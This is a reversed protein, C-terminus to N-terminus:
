NAVWGRIIDVLSDRMLVFAAALTLFVTAAGKLWSVKGWVMKWFLRDEAMELLAAKRDEPIDDWHEYHQPADSHIAM